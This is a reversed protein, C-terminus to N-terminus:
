EPRLPLHLGWDGTSIARGRPRLSPSLISSAGPDGQARRRGSAQLVQVSERALATNSQLSRSRPARRRAGGQAFSQRSRSRVGPQPHGGPVLSQGRSFCQDLIEGQGYYVAQHLAQRDIAHAAATRLRKDQFVGRRWNFVIYNGGVNWRWTNYKAGHEKHLARCRGPWTM